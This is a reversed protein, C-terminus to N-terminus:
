LQVLVPTGGIDERSVDLKSIIDAAIELNRESAAVILSNSRGEAVISFRSLRDTSGQVELYARMAQEVIPQIGAANAHELQFIEYTAGPTSGEMLELMQMVFNVDTEDGTIMLTQDDLQTAVVDGRLQGNIGSPASTTIEQAFSSAPTASRTEPQG